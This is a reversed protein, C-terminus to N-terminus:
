KDLESQEDDEFHPIFRIVIQTALEKVMGQYVLEDTLDAVGDEPSHPPFVAAVNRDEFVTSAKGNNVSLVKVIATITGRYLEVSANARTQFSSIEVYIVRTADFQPAIKEIPDFELEPHDEQFKTVAAPSLPFTTDKLEDTKADRAIELKSQIGSALNFDVDPWDIRVGRDAWVYVITKQGALGKYSAPIESQVGHALYGVVNCGNLALLLGLLGPLPGSAM